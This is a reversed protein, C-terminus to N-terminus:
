FTGTDPACANSFDMDMQMLEGQKVTWPVEMDSLHRQLIRKVANQDATGFFIAQRRAWNYAVKAADDPDLPSGFVAQEAGVMQFISDPSTMADKLEGTWVMLNDAVGERQKQKITSAALPHWFVGADIEAGGLEGHAGRAFKDENLSAWEKIVKEFVSELHKLRNQLTPLYDANETTVQIQFSTSGAM